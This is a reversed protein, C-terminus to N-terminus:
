GCFHAWMMATCTISESLVPPAKCIFLFPRTPIGSITAIMHSELDCISIAPLCFGTRMILNPRSRIRNALAEATISTAKLFMVARSPFLDLSVKKTEKGDFDRHISGGSRGFSGRSCVTRHPPRIFPDTDEYAVSRRGWENWSCLTSKDKRREFAPQLKMREAALTERDHRECRFFM